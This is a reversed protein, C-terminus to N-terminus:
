AGGWWWTRGRMYLSRRWPNPQKGSGPVLPPRQPQLPARLDVRHPEGLLPAPAAAAATASLFRSGPVPRPTPRRRGLDAARRVDGRQLAVSLQVPARDLLRPTLSPGPLSPPALSSLRRAPEKPFNLPGHPLPPESLYSSHHESSFSFSNRSSVPNQSSPERSTPAFGPSKATGHPPPPEHPVSTLKRSSLPLPTNPHPFNWSFLHHSRLHFSPRPPGLPVKLPSTWLLVNKPARECM